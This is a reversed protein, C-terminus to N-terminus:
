TRLLTLLQSRLIMDVELKRKLRTNINALYERKQLGSLDGDISATKYQRGEENSESIEDCHLMEFLSLDDM